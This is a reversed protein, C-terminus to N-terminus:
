HFVEDVTKIPREGANLLQKQFFEAIDGAEAHGSVYTSITAM